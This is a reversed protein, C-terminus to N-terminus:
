RGRNFMAILHEVFGVFARINGLWDQAFAWHIVTLWLALFVLNLGIMMTIVVLMLVAALTLLPVIIVYLLALVIKLVVSLGTRTPATLHAGMKQLRKARKNLPPHFSVFSHTQLGSQGRKPQNEPPRTQQLMRIRATAARDGRQALLIDNVNPVGHLGLAPDTGIVRAFAQMRAAADVNGAAAAMVTSMIEKRVRAYEDSDAGTSLAPNVTPPVVRGTSAAARWLELAKRQQDATPSSGRLSGDGSPNVIFLHTAWSGGAVVNSDESLRQLASALADPNRTLEVAGADALYRRTRWLLAMCPGLLVNLFFWLTIEVGLNTFVFPFLALRFFRRILGPKQNDFFREIDTSNVDLMDALLEAVEDASAPMADAPGRGFAYRVIRWLTSRSQKGFPANILTIILGCTEFVSTVTFAIHLDGNGVSAVLHGVLAQLQDRNLDDLLRRSLVIHADAPSTGIAASNAGPSDILMVRPAPLGAAIAMEQVANALQLEKLDAPNPERANLSAITGGVGAHRFLLLTGVWLVLALAIGPLLLLALSITLEQPDVVGRQNIVADAIRYALKALNHASQWFQPPLPSFHNIVEALAMAVAYLFPSLVLTLPIGMLFAAFICLVSMRWTARRNSQQAKFFTEPDRPSFQHAAATTDPTSM